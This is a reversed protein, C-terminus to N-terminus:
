HFVVKNYLIVVTGTELRLTTNYYKNYLQHFKKSKQYVKEQRINGSLTDKLLKRRNSKCKIKAFVLMIRSLEMPVELCM